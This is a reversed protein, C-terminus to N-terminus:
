PIVNILIKQTTTKPPNQPPQPPQYPGISYSYIKFLDIQGM